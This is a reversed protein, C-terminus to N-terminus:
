CLGMFSKHEQLHHDENSLAGLPQEGLAGERESWKLQPLGQLLEPFSAWPAESCGPLASRAPHQPGTSQSGKEGRGLVWSVGVCGGWGWAQGQQASVPCCFPPQLVVHPDPQNTQFPLLIHLSFHWKLHHQLGRGTGRSSSPVPGPPSAAQAEEQGRSIGEAGRM